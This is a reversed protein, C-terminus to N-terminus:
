VGGDRNERSGGSPKAAHKKALVMGFVAGIAIGPGVGLALNGFIIGLGCGIAVGISIGFGLYQQQDDKKKSM